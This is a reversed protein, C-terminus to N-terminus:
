NELKKLTIGKLIICDRQEWLQDFSIIQANIM